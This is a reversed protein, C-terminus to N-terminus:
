RAFTWLEEILGPAASASCFFNPMVGFRAAVEDLARKPDSAGTLSVPLRYV